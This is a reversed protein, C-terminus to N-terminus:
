GSPQDPRGMWAIIAGAPVIWVLGAIMYYALEALKSAQNVQLVIAVALAALAYIGLFVLLAVTGILKRTRINM